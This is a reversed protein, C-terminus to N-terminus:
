NPPWWRLTVTTHPNPLSFSRLISSNETKFWTTSASTKDKKKKELFQQCFFSPWYSSFCILFRLKSPKPVAKRSSFFCNIPQERLIDSFVMLDCIVKSITVTIDFLIRKQIEDVVLKINGDFFVAWSNILYNLSFINEVWVSFM